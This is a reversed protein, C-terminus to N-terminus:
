FGSFQTPTVIQQSTATDTLTITVANNCGDSKIFDISGTDFKTSDGSITLDIIGQTIGYQCSRDYQLTDNISSAIANNSNTEALNATGLLTYKDDSFDNFTSFGETWIINKTASFTFENNVSFNAVRIEITGLSKNDIALSGTVKDGDRQYNQLTVIALSGATLYNGTLEVRLTGKTVTGDAGVVGNGYLVRVTDGQRVASANNITVTDGSTFSTDRLLRDVVNFVTSTLSEALLQQEGLQTEVSNNGFLGEDEECATFTFGVLVAGLIYISLKKM